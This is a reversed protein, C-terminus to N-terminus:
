EAHSGKRPGASRRVLDTLFDFRFMSKLNLATCCPLDPLNRRKTPKLKTEVSIFYIKVYGGIELHALIVDYSIKSLM